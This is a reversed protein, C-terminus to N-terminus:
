RFFCASKQPRSPPRYRGQKAERRAGTDRQRSNDPFYRDMFAREYERQLNKPMREFEERSLEPLRANRQDPVRQSYGAQDNRRPDSRYNDPRLGNNRNARPRYNDPRVGNNGNPRPRYYDPESLPSSPSNWAPSSRDPLSSQPMQGSSQNMRMWDLIEDDDDDMRNMFEEMWYMPTFEPWDNDDWYPGFPGIKWVGGGALASGAFLVLFVTTIRLVNIRM